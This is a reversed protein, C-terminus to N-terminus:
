LAEQLRVKTKGPVIVRKINAGLQSLKCVIDEYGREIQEINDIITEGKSALAALILAAGARLDLAKVPAGTLPKGNTGEIVAVKGEVSIKAGMKNLEEVYKFRNEWVGETIISAGSALSLLAAFQPQMDTPFGPHSM